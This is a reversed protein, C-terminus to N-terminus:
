YLEDRKGYHVQKISVLQIRYGLDANDAVQHKVFYQHGQTYLHHCTVEAIGGVTLRRLAETVCVSECSDFPSGGIDVDGSDMNTIVEHERDEGIWLSFKYRILDMYEPYVNDAGKRILKFNFPDFNADLMELEFAVTEGSKVLVKSGVIVGTGGYAAEAPCIIIIKEGTSMRPYADDWCFPHVIQTLIATRNKRYQFQYFGGRLDSSDFVQGTSPIFGKFRMKVFKYYEPFNVGDGDRIHEVQFKDEFWEDYTTPHASKTFMVLMLLFVFFLARREKNIM